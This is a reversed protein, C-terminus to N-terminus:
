DGPTLIVLTHFRSSAAGVLGLAELQSPTTNDDIVALDASRGRLGHNARSAFRITTGNNLTIRERGRSHRERVIASQPLFSTLDLYRVRAIALTPATVLVRLSPTSLLVGILATHTMLTVTSM